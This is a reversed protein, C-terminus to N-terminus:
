GVDLVMHLSEPLVEFIGVFGGGRMALGRPFVRQIERRSEVLLHILFRSAARYIDHDVFELM